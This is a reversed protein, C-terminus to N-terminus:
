DMRLTDFGRILEDVLQKCFFLKIAVLHAFEDLKLILEAIYFSLEIWFNLIEVSNVYFRQGTFLTYWLALDSM